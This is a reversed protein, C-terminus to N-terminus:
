EHSEIIGLARLLPIKKDAFYLAKDKLLAKGQEVSEVAQGDIMVVRTQQSLLQWALDAWEQPSDVEEHRALLFLQETHSVAIGSGTVPSALYEIRDSHVAQELMYINLANTKISVANVVDAPQVPYIYHLSALVLLADLIQPKMVLRLQYYNVLEDTSKPAYQNEALCELIPEYVEPPLLTDGVPLKAMLNVDTPPVALIFTLQELGQIKELANLQRVGKAWVDARLDHNFLFDRTEERLVTDTITNLFTQDKEKLCLLDINDIFRGHAAFSLKAESLLDAMQSFRYLHHHSLYEKLVTLPQSHQINKVSNIAQPNTRSFVSETEITKVLFDVSSDIKLKTGDFRHTLREYHLKMLDYLPKNATNVGLPTKYNVYFIGGVVLQRSIFDIVIRQEESDLMSWVDHMVIMDFKPLDSRQSFQAFSENYIAVNAGSAKSLDSAFFAADSNVNVGWFEGQNAAAHINLSLGDQFGLELYRYKKNTPLFEKASFLMGLRLNMPSLNYQYGCAHNLDTFCEDNWSM